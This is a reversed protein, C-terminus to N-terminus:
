QELRGKRIVKRDKPVMAVCEAVNRAKVLVMDAINGEKLGYGELGLLKAGNETCMEMAFALDNDSQFGNRMAILQAREIMDGVAMIAGFIVSMIMEAAFMSVQKMFNKLPHYPQFLHSSCIHGSFDGCRGAQM